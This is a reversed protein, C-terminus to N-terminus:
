ELSIEKKEAIDKICTYIVDFIYENEEEYSKIDKSIIKCNSLENKEKEKIILELSQKAEELSLYQEDCEQHYCLEEQITVPFEIGFFKVKKDITEIRYQEDINCWPNLYFEKGFLETKYKKIIKGTDKANLQNLKIKETMYHKTVAFVKGNAESFSTNGSDNEKIGTILIQGKLVADGEKVCPTGKYVELREIQGESKAIINCPVGESVMDPSKVKEKISVNLCSGKTNISIWSIDTIKSMIAQKLLRSDIDSKKSGVNVGFDSMATIIESTSIHENGTVNINWVYLSSIYIISAFITIGIVLGIRKKYRFAIIPWGYKKTVKIKSNSKRTKKHLSKYDSILAKAYLDGNVRKLDWLNINEKVVDNIFKEPFGGSVKFSVYGWIWRLIGLIM